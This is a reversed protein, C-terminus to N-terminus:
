CISGSGPANTTPDVGVTTGFLCSNALNTVGKPAIPLLVGCGDKLRNQLSAQWKPSLDAANVAVLFAVM